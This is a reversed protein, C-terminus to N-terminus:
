VKPKYELLGSKLGLPTKGTKPAHWAGKPMIPGGSDKENRDRIIISDYREKNLDYDKPKIPPSIPQPKEMQQGKSIAQHYAELKNQYEQLLNDYKKKMKEYQIIIKNYNEVVAKIEDKSGYTDSYDSRMEM